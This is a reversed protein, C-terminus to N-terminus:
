QQDPTLTPGALLLCHGPDFDLHMSNRSGEQIPRLMPPELESDRNWGVRGPLFLPWGCKSAPSFCPFATVRVGFSLRSM